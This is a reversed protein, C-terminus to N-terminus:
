VSPTNNSTPTVSCHPLHATTGAKISVSETKRSGFAPKQKTQFLLALCRQLLFCHINNVQIVKSRMWPMRRGRLFSCIWCNEKLRWMFQRRGCIARPNLCKWKKYLRLKWLTVVFLVLQQALMMETKKFGEEEGGGCNVSKCLTSM